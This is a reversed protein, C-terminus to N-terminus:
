QSKSVLSNGSYIYGTKLLLDYQKTSYTTNKDHPIWKTTLYKIENHPCTLIDEEAPKHIPFNLQIM